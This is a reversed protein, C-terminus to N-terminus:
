LVRWSLSIAFLELSSDYAFSQPKDLSEPKEFPDFIKSRFCNEHKSFREECRECLLRIKLIDQSRRGGREVSTLYGTPSERKLWDGFFKPIVHSQCVFGAGGCLACTEPKGARNLTEIRPANRWIATEPRPAAPGSDRLPDGAGATLPAEDVGM